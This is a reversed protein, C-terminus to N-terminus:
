AAVENSGPGFVAAPLSAIWALGHDVDVLTKEGQKVARLFGNKLANYTGTRSMGSIEGWGKITTFKPTM